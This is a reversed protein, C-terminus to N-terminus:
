ENDDHLPMDLLLLTISGVLLLLLVNKVNIHSYIEPSISFALKQYVTPDDHLCKIAACIEATVEMENYQKTLQHIHHVELYTDTLLSSCVAQFGTYPIPFFVGGLHIINGPNMTHTLSGNMHVTM